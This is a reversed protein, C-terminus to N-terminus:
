KMAEIVSDIETEIDEIGYIWNTISDENDDNTKLEDLKGRAEALLASISQLLEKNM